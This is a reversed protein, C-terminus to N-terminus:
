IIDAFETEMRRFILISGLLIVATSLMSIGVIGWDMETGLMAHRFGSVMGVMPNLALLLRLREPVYTLPYIVPTVFMGMQIFFPVAYKVDRYKVNVSSLVIGFGAAAAISGALFLPATLLAASVPYRYYLMLAFALVIGVLLDLVLAGIAGLPVFIRPFYVKSVLTQNGILSNSSMSVANSFFTWPLLGVYAFLAYPPGDSSVRAMRHFFFTFILMALLPQLVAWLGGLMTQRYRIKIDRWMLVRFVDRYHWLEQFLIPQWGRRPRIVFEVPYGM